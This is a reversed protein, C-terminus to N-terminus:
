IETKTRFQLDTYEEKKHVRNRANKKIRKLESIVLAQAEDVEKLKIPGLLDIEKKLSIAYDPSLSDLFFDKLENSAGKLSIALTSIDISSPIKKVYDIEENILNNLSFCYKKIIKDNEINDSESESKKLIKNSKKENVHSLIKITDERTEKLSKKKSRSLM